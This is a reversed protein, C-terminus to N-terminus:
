ETGTEKQLKPVIGSEEDFYKTNADAWGGFDEDVTLLTAPAPFPDAPDNAGAVEVGEGGALPRFGYKAYIEQGEASTLFDLFDQTESAADETVAAPNEILLTTDPLVYDFDSGNQKALIAENEYSLLVDGTGSTFLTTADRASEPLAVTNGLLDELYSQAAAESGGEATTHGLAALINWKASGSSAPNPTIVEVGDKTLDEWGQINEPNDSRVVFVVVSQSAIGKTETDKWSEAVLGADVLRQMDPELSFHVLDAAKGAEVARSQDGSAGYSPVFTVGSGAETEKFAATAEENAAELVSFGVLSLQAGDGGGEGAEADSGGCASLSLMGLLAAAAAAKTKITM